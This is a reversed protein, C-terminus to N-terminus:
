GEEKISCLDDLNIELSAVPMKIKNNKLIIPKIEGIIGIPKNNIIIEGARGDIYSTHETERIEYKLDLMRM